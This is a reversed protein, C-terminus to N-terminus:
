PCQRKSPKVPSRCNLWKPGQIAEIVKVLERHTPLQEIFRKYNGIMEGMGGGENEREGGM